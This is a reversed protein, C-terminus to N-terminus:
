GDWVVQRCAGSDTGGHIPVTSRSRRFGCADVRNFRARFFHVYILRVAREELVGFADDRELNLRSFRHPEVVLVFQRV